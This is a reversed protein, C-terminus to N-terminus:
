RVKKRPEKLWEELQKRLWEATHRTLILEVEMRHESQPRDHTGAVVDSGIELRLVDEEDSLFMHDVFVQRFDPSRTISGTRRKGKKAM